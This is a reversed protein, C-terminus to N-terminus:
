TGAGYIASHVSPQSLAYRLCETPGLSRLSFAKGFVKMAQNGVGREIAVPLAMRKFSLYAHDLAHVPMMVTDWKHCARLLTAHSEPDHHGDLHPRRPSARPYSHCPTAYSCDGVAGTGSTALKSIPDNGPLRRCRPSAIRRRCSRDTAGVGCCFTVGTHEHM